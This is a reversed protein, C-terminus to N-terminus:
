VVASSRSEVAVQATGKVQQRSEERPDRGFLPRAPRGDSSSVSQNRDIIQYRRNM